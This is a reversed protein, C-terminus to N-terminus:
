LISTIVEHTLDDQAFKIYYEAYIISYLEGLFARHENDAQMEADEMHVELTALLYELQKSNM